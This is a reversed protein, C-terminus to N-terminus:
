DKRYLRNQKQKRKIAGSIERMKASQRFSLPNGGIGKEPDKFAAGFREIRGAIDELFDTEWSTTACRAGQNAMQILRKARRVAKKALAANRKEREQALDKHTAQKESSQYRKNLM